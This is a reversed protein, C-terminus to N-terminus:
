SDSSMLEAYRAAFEPRLQQLCPASDDSTEIATSFHEVADAGWVHRAETEWWQKGGPSLLLSLGMGRFGLWSGENMYGDRHMYFAREVLMLLEYGWTSFRHRDEANADSYGYLLRAVTEFLELDHRTSSMWEAAGILLERQSQGKAIDQNQRLQNGVFLLSGIVALAGLGEATAGIAEWNM